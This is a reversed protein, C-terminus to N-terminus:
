NRSLYLQFHDREVEPVRPEVGEISIEMKPRLFYLFNGSDRVWFFERGKEDRRPLIRLPILQNTTTLERELEEHRQLIM